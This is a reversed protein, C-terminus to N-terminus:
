DGPRPKCHQYHHEALFQIQEALKLADDLELHAHAQIQEGDPENFNVPCDIAVWVYMGKANSSEYARVHGGYDSPIPPMHIFGRSTRSPKLHPHEVGEDM